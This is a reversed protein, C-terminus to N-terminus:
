GIFFGAVSGLTAGTLATGLGAGAMAISQATAVVGAAPVAGGYFSMAAAAITGASPGIATFGIVPLAVPLAVTLLTGGAIAGVGAGAIQLVNM